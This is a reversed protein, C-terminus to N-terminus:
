PDIREGSGVSFLCQEGDRICLVIRESKEPARAPAGRAVVDGSAVLSDAAASGAYVVAEAGLERM